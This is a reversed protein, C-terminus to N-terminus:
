GGIETAKDKEQKVIRVAKRDGITGPLAPFSERGDISVVAPASADTETVIIDGVRLRRLEAATITTAALAVSIEAPANDRGADDPASKAQCQEFFAPKNAIKRVARIPWGLQALGRRGSLAIRFGAVVVPEDAPLARLRRPNREAQLVSIALPLVPQFAAGLADFFVRAVRGALSLEIDTPARCPAAEDGPGGLMRDLMPYLISLGLDLLLCDGPPEAKALHLCSPNDLSQIWDGYATQELGLFSAEVQERLLGSLSEGLRPAMGAHLAGFPRLETPSLADHLTALPMLSTMPPLYSGDGFPM